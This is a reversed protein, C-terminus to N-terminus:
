TSSDSSQPTVQFRDEQLGHIVDWLRPMEQCLQQRALQIAEQPNAGRVRVHMHGVTVDYSLKPKQSNWEIM